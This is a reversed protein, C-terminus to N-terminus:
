RIFIQQHYYYHTASLGEAYARLLQNIQAQYGGVRFTHLNYWTYFVPAIM